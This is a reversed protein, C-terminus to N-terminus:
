WPTRAGFALSRGRPERNARARPAGGGLLWWETPCGRASSILRPLGCTRDCTRIRGARLGRMREAFFELHDRRETLLIPSRGQNIAGIVDDPAQRHSRPHLPRAGGFPRTRVVGCARPPVRGRHCATPRWSTTSPAAMHLAKLVLETRLHTEMARGVIRRSWVDLVIALYVFGTWTPIYTIDAVWLQDPGTATFNRDVPDPAPRAGECRVTTTMWKRRSVGRLGAAKM